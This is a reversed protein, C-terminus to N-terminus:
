EDSRIYVIRPILPVPSTLCTSSLGSISGPDEHKTVDQYGTFVTSNGYVYLCVCEYVSVRMFVFVSACVCVCMYKCGCRCIYICVCVYICMYMRVYICM